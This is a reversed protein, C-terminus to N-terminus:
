QAALDTRASDAPASIWWAQPSRRREQRRRAQLAYELQLRRLLLEELSLATM